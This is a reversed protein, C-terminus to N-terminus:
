ILIIIIFFLFLSPFTGNFHSRECKGLVFAYLLDHYNWNFIVAIRKVHLCFSSLKWHSRVMSLSLQILYFSKMMNCVCIQFLDKSAVLAWDQGVRNISIFYFWRVNWSPFCIHSSFFGSLLLYILIFVACSGCLSM